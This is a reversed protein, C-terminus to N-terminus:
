KEEALGIPEYVEMYEEKGKIPMKGVELVIIKDKIAQYTSDSILIDRKCTSCITELRSAVNITNGFATYNMFKDAGTLGFVADGANIGIKIDFIVKNEKANIIKLEDARKKIELATKVALFENEKSDAWYIMISDGMFKDIIGGNEFAINAIEKMLNNLSNILREPDYKECIDAFDKIDCFLVTIRKKTSELKAEDPYKLLNKITKPSAFKGFVNMIYVKKHIEKFLRYVFIIGLTMALYYSPMVVPILMRSAPNIFVWFATLLYLLILIFGYILGSLARRSVWSVFAVLICAIITILIQLPKPVEYIFKKTLKDGPISDNMFNDLAAAVAENSTYSPNITSSLDVNGNASTKGIIVIKDKFFEPQLGDLAGDNLLIKSVPIYTYGNECKHLSLNVTGDSNLPIVRDKYFLKKKNIVLNKDEGIYKLFGAFALSPMYYTQDNKVLKFIPQDKRVKNDSDLVKNLVGITNYQTYIDNVPANTYYTIDKDLKKNKVTVNLPQSTPLDENPNIYINKAFTDNQIKPNGLYTGLVINDYKRLKQAFRRDNWSNENLNEFVMDFLVAKPKGQEIFDVIKSWVDRHWPWPGIDEGANEELSKKSYDDLAVIVINKDAHNFNKNLPSNDSALNTRMDYSLLELKKVENLNALICGLIIVLIIIGSIIYINKKMLKIKDSILRLLMKEGKQRM